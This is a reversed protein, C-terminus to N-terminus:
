YIFIDLVIRSTHYKILAYRKEDMQQHCLPQNDVM